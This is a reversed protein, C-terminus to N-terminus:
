TLTHSTHDLVPSRPSLYGSVLAKWVLVPQVPRTSGSGWSAWPPGGSRRSTELKPYLNPVSDGGRLHDWTSGGLAPSHCPHPPSLHALLSAAAIRWLAHGIGGSVAQINCKDLKGHTVCSLAAEAEKPLQGRQADKETRDRLRELVKLWNKFHFMETETRPQTPPDAQLGHTLPWPCLGPLWMVRTEFGAGARGGRRLFTVAVEGLRPKEVHFIPLLLM